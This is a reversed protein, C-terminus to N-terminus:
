NLRYELNHSDVPDANSIMTFVYDLCNHLGWIDVYDYTGRLAMKRADKERLQAYAYWERASGFRHHWDHCVLSGQVVLMRCPLHFFLHAVGWKLWRGSNRLSVDEPCRSGCFRALCNKM